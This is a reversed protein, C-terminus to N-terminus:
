KRAMHTQIDVFIDSVCEPSDFAREPWRGREIPSCCDLHTALTM